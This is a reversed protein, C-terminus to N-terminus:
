RRDTISEQRTAISIRLFPDRNRATYEVVTVLEILVLNITGTSLMALNSNNATKLM